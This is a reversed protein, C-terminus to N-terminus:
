SLLVLEKRIAKMACILGTQRHKVLYVSNFESKGIMALKEFQEENLGPMETCENYSLLDKKAVGYFEKSPMSEAESGACCLAKTGM